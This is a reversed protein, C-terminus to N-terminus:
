GVGSAGADSDSAEGDWSAQSMFIQRPRYGLAIAHIIPFGAEKLALAANRLTHGTTMFDDILLLTDIKRTAALAYAHDTAMVHSPSQLRNELGLEAQRPKRTSADKLKLLNADLAVQTEHSIWRSVTLAPSRGLRWSRKFSQPMPIVLTRIPDHIRKQIATLFRGESRLIRQDFLPGGHKKWTKLVTYGPEILLYRASYSDIVTTESSLFCETPKPVCRHSGCRPCLLPAPLARQACDECLPFSRYSASRECSRCRFLLQLLM